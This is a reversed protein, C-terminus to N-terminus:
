PLHIETKRNPCLQRFPAFIALQQAFEFGIRALLGGALSPRDPPTLTTKITGKVSDIGHHFSGM